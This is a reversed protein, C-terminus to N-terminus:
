SGWSSRLERQGVSPGPGDPRLMVASAVLGPCSAEAREKTKMMVLDRLGFCLMSAVNPMLNLSSSNWTLRSAGAACQM